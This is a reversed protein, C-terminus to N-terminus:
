NVDMLQINLNNKNFEDNINNSNVKEWTLEEIIVDYYIVYVAEIIITIIYIFSILYGIIGQYKIFVFHGGALVLAIFNIMTLVLIIFNTWFLNDGDLLFIKENSLRYKIGIFGIYFLSLILIICLWKYIYENYKSFIFTIYHLLIIIGVILYFHFLWKYLTFKRNNKNKDIKKNAKGSNNSNQIKRLNLLFIKDEEKNNDNSDLIIKEKSNNINNTNNETSDFNIKGNSNNINNNNIINDIKPKQIDTNIIEEKLNNMNDNRFSSSFSSNSYRSKSRSKNISSHSLRFSDRPTYFIQQNYSFIINDTPQTEMMQSITFFSYNKINIYKSKSKTLRVAFYEKNEVVDKFQEINYNDVKMSRLSNDDTFSSEDKEKM